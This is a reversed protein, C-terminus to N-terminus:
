VRDSLGLERAAEPNDHIWIHHGKCTCVANNEDHRKSLVGRRVIHHHMLEGWCPVGPVLDLVECFGRSRVKESMERDMSLLRAGRRGIPKLRTKSQLPKNSRALPSRKM